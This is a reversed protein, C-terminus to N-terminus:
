KITLQTISEPLNVKLYDAIFEGYKKKIEVSLFKFGRINSRCELSGCYCQPISIDSFETTSY